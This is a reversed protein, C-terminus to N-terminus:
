ALCCSIFFCDIPSHTPLWCNILQHIPTPASVISPILQLSDFFIIVKIQKPRLGVTTGNMPNNQNIEMGMGILCVGWNM